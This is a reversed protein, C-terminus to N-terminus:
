CTYMSHANAERASPRCSCFGLSRSIHPKDLSHLPTWSVQTRPFTSLHQFAHKPALLMLPRTHWHPWLNSFLRIFRLSGATQHYVPLPFWNPYWFDCLSTLFFFLFFHLWHEEVTAWPIQRTGTSKYGRPISVTHNLSPVSTPIEHPSLNGSQSWPSRLSTMSRRICSHSRLCCGLRQDKGAKRGLSLYKLSDPTKQVRGKGSGRVSSPKMHRGFTNRVRALSQTPNQYALSSQVRM